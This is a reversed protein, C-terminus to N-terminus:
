LTVFTFSFSFHELPPGVDVYSCSAPFCTVCFSHCLIFSLLHLKQFLCVAPPPLNSLIDPSSFVSLHRPKTALFSIYLPFTKLLFCHLHCAKTVLCGVCPLFTEHLLCLRCGHSNSSEYSGCHKYGTHATHPQATM